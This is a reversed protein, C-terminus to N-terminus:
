SFNIVFIFLFFFKGVHCIFVYFLHMCLIIGAHEEFQDLPAVEEFM